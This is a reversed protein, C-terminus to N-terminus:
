KFNRLYTFENFGMMGISVLPDARREARTVHDVDM